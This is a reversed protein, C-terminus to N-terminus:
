SPKWTRLQHASKRVQEDYHKEELVLIEWWTAAFPNCLQPDDVMDKYVGDAVREETSLLADLKGDAGLLGRVFDLLRVTTAPGTQTALSLLRKSFAALLYSPTNGFKPTLIIGLVRFLLDAVSSPNHTSGKDLTQSEEQSLTFALRPLLKYLHATFESLDLNM